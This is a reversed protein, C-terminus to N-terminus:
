AARIRRGDLLARLRFGRHPRKGKLMPDFATMYAQISRPQAASRVRRCLPWSSPKDSLELIGGSDISTTSVLTRM